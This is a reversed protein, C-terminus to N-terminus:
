VICNIKIVFELPNQSNKDWKLLHQIRKLYNIQTSVQLKILKITM